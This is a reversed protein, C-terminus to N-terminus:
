SKSWAKVAKEITNNIVATCTLITAIVLDAPGPAILNLILLLMATILLIWTIINKKM